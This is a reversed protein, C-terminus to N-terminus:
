VAAPRTPDGAPANLGVMDAWRPWTQQARGNLARDIVLNAM